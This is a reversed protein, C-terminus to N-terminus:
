CVEIWYRLSSSGEIEGGVDDVCRYGDGGYDEEVRGEVSKGASGEPALERMGGVDGDLQGMTVEVYEDLPMPKPAKGGLASNVAERHGADLATNVYPPVLEIV